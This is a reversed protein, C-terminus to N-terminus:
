RVEKETENQKPHSDRQPLPAHLKALVSPRESKVSVAPRVEPESDSIEAMAEMPMRDDINLEINLQVLRASKEKLEQEQPFPKGLEAKATEMQAYLSDLKEQVRALRTEMGALANDIRILNGRPDKGLEVRHSMKGKLTLVYQKGFDELTLSMQFGRYSGIPVPELGKVEKMADVLAAGANEKDTLVDGRVTMGAFGDQPHPHEALTQMDAQFGAIFGKNQEIQEPFHRLINDELRYQQSQHNAKMLKLRAVDVDLEMKEKIREDGACLAKIEAYSLATEDIDECSRVPSKSTMIQSIFKQKNELTQWLYADFTAETVYRFIHVQKNRNGQRIIRGSRQELDGPRWPADLDHLAVLRDQVNMGAGMKFTSGMLVRVQGSRVKAFLEKKRAETNAEHIFAIQERPIGRAALKERIDDYVTFEPEPTIDIQSEVAHLEPSDLNGAVSKAAKAAPAGTKPTSLDCFVLQTLRDAQGEDWIRYINDVCMNVKSSPDDPLDPNIIRQDLGLKRGDTTIRLMNDVSADVAGAHVRAARESLEQVMAQQIETPQAVVNHYVAEPVPLHLQDSTKIDAVEKFLTMLEPLNFFKAFRTRARYGTGEPALEIATQTEGFSSAWSDFHGLGLKQLTGYQLYRMNTYLETMSNSIPTGTAFTVGKGGTLEDLYQCKAFIDSSKQAESQAIGAVNRMKTYLFLNKYNHSEDVFLRDVGLQEFTVVNDKRSADNLKELRTLLSKRSKEM